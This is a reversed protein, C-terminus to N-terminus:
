VFGLPDVDISIKVGRERGIEYIRDLCSKVIEHPLQRQKGLVFMQWRYHGKIKGLLAQSPGMLCLNERGQEIKQTLHSGIEEAAQITDKEVPSWVLLSIARSFPPYDLAKRYEIEQQYFGEYDHNQALQISYHEPTYTQIVVEGPVRGRGARGAVQTLLQFTREGSIYDPFNLATDATIVGVLSVNEFDLGKAIMQTGVLMDGKGSRFASLIREHSGKQTTTDMDMRLVRLDPFLKNAEKEVRETGIGFYRIHHSRCKPCIDPVKETLSCYHCQLYKQTEHYTLSVDCHPCRLSHGCERCLVFTSFGRRNLFIISQQGKAHAKLIAEQLKRSFPNKNKAKLEERMDIVNVQPLSEGTIRQPLTLIEMEKQQARHYTEVSPTASGLVVCAGELKSRFFAIERAHYKPNESQKYSPEHEEDIIILGLRKFPAFVASRAGVVISAQGHLIRRWQDYREGASLRSHLVAVDGGFRSKFREVTQPTLSIEPVLVIAQKGLDLVYRIAQLYVETKGSGTVGHLLYSKGEEKIGDKIKDLSRKQDQYLSLDESSEFDSEPHPDRNVEEKERKVLGKEEMRAIVGPSIGLYDKITAERLPRGYSYLMEIVEAQRPARRRIKEWSEPDSSEDTLEVINATKIKLGDNVVAERKIIGKKELVKLSPLLSRSGLKRELANRDITKEKVLVQMIKAQQSNDKLQFAKEGKVILSDATLVIREQSEWRVGAPLISRFAEAKTCLYHDAMWLALALMHQSILPKEDMVSLIPRVNKVEAESLLGLVIGEVKRSTFPVLVRVGPAVFPMLDEPVRYHFPRDLSRSPVNLLVEAFQDRKNEACENM